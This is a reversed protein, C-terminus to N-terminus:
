VGTQNLPRSPPGAPHERTRGPGTGTLRARDGGPDVCLAACVGGAVVILGTITFGRGYGTAADPAADLILGMAYPGGVSGLSYLGNLTGMVAGRRGPPCIRGVANFASTMAVMPLGAALSVGCLLAAGTGLHPVLLACLGGAAVTAGTLVGLPLRDPVGRNLLRGSAAGLALIAAISVLNPPIIMNGAAQADYGVVKVFYPVLWALVVALCWAAAFTMAVAGAFTRSLLIRRYTAGEGAAVPVGEASAAETVPAPVREPVPEAPRDKGFVAYLVAWCASLLATTLFGM